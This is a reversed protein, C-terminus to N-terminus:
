RQTLHSCLELFHGSFVACTGLHERVKCGTWPFDWRPSQLTLVLRPRCPPSPIGLLPVAQWFALHSAGAGPFPLSSGVPVSSHPLWQTASASFVRGLRSSSSALKSEVLLVLLGPSPSAVAVLESKDTGKSKEPQLTSVPLVLCSTPHSSLLGECPGLHFIFTCARSDTKGRVM